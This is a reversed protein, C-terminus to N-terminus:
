FNPPCQCVPLPFCIVNWGALSTPNKCEISHIDVLVSINLSRLCALNCRGCNFNNGVLKLTLLKSWRELIYRDPLKRFMNHSLDVHEVSILDELISWRVSSLRNGHIDLIKLNGLASFAGQSIGSLDNNSVNLLLLNELAGLSGYYLYVVDNNQLYLHTLSGSMREFSRHPIELLENHDLYLSELSHLGEFMWRDLRHEKGFKNHSLQLTRLRTTGNFVYIPLTSIENYQLHLGLLSYSKSFM